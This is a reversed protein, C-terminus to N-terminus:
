ETWNPEVSSMANDDRGPLRMRYRLADSCPAAVAFTTDTGLWQHHHVRHCYPCLVDYRTFGRDREVCLVQAAPTGPM